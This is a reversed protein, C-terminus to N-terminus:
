HGCGTLGVTASHTRSSQSTRSLGGFRNVKDVFPWPERIGPLTKPHVFLFLMKRRRPLYGDAM